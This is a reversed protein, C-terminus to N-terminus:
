GKKSGYFKMAISLVFLIPLITLLITSVVAPTDTHLTASYLENLATPTLAAVVFLAIVLGIIYQMINKGEM